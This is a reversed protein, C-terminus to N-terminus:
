TPELSFVQDRPARGGPLCGPSWPRGSFFLSIFFILLFFSFFPSFPPFFLLLFFQFIIVFLLPFIFFIFIIFFSYFQFFISFNRLAARSFKFNTFISFHFIYFYNQAFESCLRGKEFWFTVGVARSRTSKRFFGVTSLANSSFEVKSVAWCMAVAFLWFDIKRSKGVKAERWFAYLGERTGFIEKRFPLLFKRRLLKQSLADDKQFGFIEFIRFNWHFKWFFFNRMCAVVIKM